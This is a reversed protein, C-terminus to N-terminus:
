KLKETVADVIFSNLSKGEKEAAAKIQERVGKKLVINIRDYNKKHYEKDYENKNFKNEKEL